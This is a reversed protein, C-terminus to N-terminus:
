SPEIQIKALRSYGENSTRKQENQRRKQLQLPVGKSHHKGGVLEWNFLGKKLGRLGALLEKKQHGM